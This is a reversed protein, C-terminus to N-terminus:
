CDLVYKDESVDSARDGSMHLGLIVSGFTMLVIANITYGSFKHKVLLYAFIATFGLQTTRLLSSVSVPLYSTSFSHM